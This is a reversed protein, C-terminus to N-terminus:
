KQLSWVFRQRDRALGDLIANRGCDCDKTRDRISCGDLHHAASMWEHLHGMPDIDSCNLCRVLSRPNKKCRHCRAREAM